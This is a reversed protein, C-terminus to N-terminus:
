TKLLNKVVEQHAWHKNTQVHNNRVWKAVLTSFESFAFERAPRVVLGEQKDLDFGNVIDNVTDLSFKGRHLVEVTPFGFLKAWYETEDWSLANNKENWISFIYFYSELDDYAISHKAFMNEGCIRWNEPIDFCMEAHKKLIWTRSPHYSYTRSRAHMAHPYMNTNEGDLKILYVCEEENMLPTLDKLIKDDNQVSLSNPLHKTRQYKVLKNLTNM